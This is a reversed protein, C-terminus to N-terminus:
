RKACTLITLQGGPHNIVVDTLEFGAPCTTGGAPGAPGTPGTAGNRVSITVTRTAQQPASLTVSALAGSVGALLLAGGLLLRVRLSGM